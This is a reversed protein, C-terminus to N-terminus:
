GRVAITVSTAATYLLDVKDRQLNRAAEEVAKLDGKTDRVELLIRKGEEFGLQQLGDRLGDVVTKYPGGQHIVGVRYVKSQVAEARAGCVTLVVVIAFLAVWKLNQIKSKRNGCDSNLVRAWLTKEM